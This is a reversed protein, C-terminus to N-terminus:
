QRAGAPCSGASNASVVTAASGQGLICPVGNIVINATAVGNVGSSRVGVGAAVVDGTVFYNKFFSLRDQAQAAQAFLMLVLAFATITIHKASYQQRMAEQSNIHNMDSWRRM